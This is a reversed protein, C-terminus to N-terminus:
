QEGKMVQWYANDMLALAEDETLPDGNRRAREEEILKLILRDLEIRQKNNPKKRKM